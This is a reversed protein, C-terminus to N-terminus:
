SALSLSTFLHYLCTSFISDYSKREVSFQTVLSMTVHLRFAPRQEYVTVENCYEHILCYTTSVQWMFIHYYGSVALRSTEICITRYRKASIAYWHVAFHSHSDHYHIGNVYVQLIQIGLLHMSLYQHSGSHTADRVTAKLKMRCIQFETSMTEYM